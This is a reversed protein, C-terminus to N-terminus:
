EALKSTLTEKTVGVLGLGSLFGRCWDSLCIVREALEFDDSPLFLEFKFNIATFNELIEQYIQKLMTTLESTVETCGLSDILVKNWKEIGLGSYGCFMGVQLGHAESAGVQARAKILEQDLDEFCISNAM